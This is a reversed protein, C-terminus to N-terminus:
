PLVNPAYRFRWSDLVVTEGGGAVTVSVLMSDAVPTGNLPTQTMTVSAAYGAPGPIAAGAFGSIPFGTAVGFATVYDNVHDYPRVEGAEPGVVDVTACDATGTASLYNPDTAVCYGFGSQAIEELVAEAIALAQKRALPDASQKVFVGLVSMLGVIGVSIVIIFVILEILTFGRGCRRASM